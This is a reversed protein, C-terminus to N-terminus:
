ARSIIDGDRDIKSRDIAREVEYRVRLPSLQEDEYKEVLHQVLADFTPPDQFHAVEGVVLPIVQQIDGRMSTEIPYSDTEFLSVLDAYGNTLESETGDTNELRIDTCLRATLKAAEIKEKIRGVKGWYTGTTVGLADAARYEGVMEKQYLMWAAFEKTSFQSDQQITTIIEALRSETATAFEEVLELYSDDAEIQDVIDQDIDLSLEFDTDYGYQGTTQPVTRIDILMPSHRNYILTEFDDPRSEHWEDLTEGLAQQKWEIQFHKPAHKYIVALTATDM